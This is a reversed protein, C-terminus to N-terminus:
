LICCSKVFGQLICYKHRTIHHLTLPSFHINNVLKIMVAM